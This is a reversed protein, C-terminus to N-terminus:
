IQVSYQIVLSPETATIKTHVYPKGHYWSQDVSSPFNHIMVVTPVLMISAFDHNASKIIQDKAVIVKEQLDCSFYSLCARWM